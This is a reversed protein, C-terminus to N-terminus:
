FRIGITDDPDQSFVQGLVSLVLLLSPTMNVLRPAVDSQESLGAGPTVFSNESEWGMVILILGALLALLTYVHRLDSPRIPFQQITPFIIFPNLPIHKM